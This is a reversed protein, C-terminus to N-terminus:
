ISKKLVGPPMGIYKKFVKCFYRVDGVGVAEAAESVTYRGSKLLETAKRVRLRNRYEVPSMGKAAAFIRRFSAPSLSCMRALAEVPADDTFNNELYDLASRIRLNQEDLEDRNTDRAMQCLLKFSLSVRELWDFPGCTDAKAALERLLGDYVNHNDHFLVRPADEFLIDQGESDKLLLDVVMFSSARLWESQYATDRPLYVMDRDGARLEGKRLSFCVEGQTIYVFREVPAPQMMYRHQAPVETREIRLSILQFRDISAHALASMIMTKM